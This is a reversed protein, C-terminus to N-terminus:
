GVESRSIPVGAYPTQRLFTELTSETEESHLGLVIETLCEPRLPIEIYSRGYADILCQQPPTPQMLRWEQEQEFNARKISFAENLLRVFAKYGLLIKHEDSFRHNWNRSSLYECFRTLINKYETEQYMMM